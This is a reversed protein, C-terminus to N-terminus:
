ARPCTCKWQAEGEPDASDLGCGQKGWPTTRLTLSIVHLSEIAPMCLIHQHGPGKRAKVNQARLAPARAKTDRDGTISMKVM